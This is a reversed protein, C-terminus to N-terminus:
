KSNESCSHPGFQKCVGRVKRVGRAVFSSSGEVKPHDLITSLFPTEYVAGQGQLLFIVLATSTIRLRLEV